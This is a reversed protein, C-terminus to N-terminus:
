VMGKYGENLKTDPHVSKYRGIYQCEVTASVFCSVTQGTRNLPKKPRRPKSFPKLATVIPPPAPNATTTLASLFWSIFKKM